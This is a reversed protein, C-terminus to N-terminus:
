VKYEIRRRFLGQSSSFDTFKSSSGVKVLAWCQQQQSPLVPRQPGEGTVVRSCSVALIWRVRWRWTRHISNELRLAEIPRCFYESHIKQYHDFPLLSVRLAAKPYLLTRSNEVNECSIYSKNRTTTVLLPRYNDTSSCKMEERCGPFLLIPHSALLHASHPFSSCPISLEPLWSGRVISVICSFLKWHQSFSPFIETECNIRQYTIIVYIYHMKNKTYDTYKTKPDTTTQAAALSPILPPLIWWLTWQSRNVCSRSM